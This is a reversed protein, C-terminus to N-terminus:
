TGDLKYADLLVNGTMGGNSNDQPNSDWKLVIEYEGDGDLDGCSADGASYEYSYSNDGDSYTFAAPKDLAIDIYNNAMPTVAECQEGGEAAVTYSDSSTGTADLFNTSTDVTALLAGNKYIKFDPAKVIDKVSAEDGLLRWSLYVGNNVKVAVLGRDLKEMYRTHNEGDYNYTIETLKDEGANEYAAYSAAPFASIM